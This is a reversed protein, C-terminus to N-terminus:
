PGTSEKNLKEYESLTYAGNHLALCFSQKLYGYPSYPKFLHTMKLLRPDGLTINDELNEEHEIKFDEVDETVENVVKNQKM